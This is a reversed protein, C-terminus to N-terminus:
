PVLRRFKGKEWNKSLGLSGTLYIQKLKDSPAGNINDNGLSTSWKNNDLGYRYGVQLAFITSKTQTLNIFDIGIGLNLYTYNNNIQIANRTTFLSNFNTPPQAQIINTTGSM